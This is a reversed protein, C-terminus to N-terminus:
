DPIRVSILQDTKIEFDWFNKDMENELVPEPKHM